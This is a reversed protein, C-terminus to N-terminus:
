PTYLGRWSLATLVVLGVCSGVLAAHHFKPSDKTIRAVGLALAVPMAFVAIVYRGFSDVNNAALAVAITVALYVVWSRQMRSAAAIMVTIAIAVFALVYVDRMDQTVLRTVMHVTRSVPDVFGARLQSQITLPDRWSGGNLQLWMFFAGLGIMPSIAVILGRMLTSVPRDQRRNWLDWLVLAAILVGVPRTLGVLVGLAAAEWYRDRRWALIMLCSLMVMLSESYGFVYCAAAPFLCMWWLARAVVREDYGFERLLQALAILAGFACANAVLVLAVDTNGIVKAVPMVLSPFLPFFRRAEYSSGFYGHEVISRYWDGDWAALGRGTIYDADQTGYGVLLHSAVLYAVGVAARAALFPWIALRLSNRSTM